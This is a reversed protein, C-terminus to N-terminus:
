ALKKQWFWAQGANPDLQYGAYGVARYLAQAAQNGALVELTLKCCGSAVALQEARELLLRGIGRGRWPASVALDHINFLPRCAFTSFGEFGILLGAPQGDAYALLVRAGARRALEAVLQSKVAEALGQGGGMPHRAYEDLLAILAQGQEPQQLDAQIIDIM